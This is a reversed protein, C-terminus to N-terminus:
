ARQATAHSHPPTGDLRAIHSRRTHTTALAQLCALAAARCAAQEDDLHSRLSSLVRGTLAVSSEGDAAGDSVAALPFQPPTAALASHLCHLSHLRVVDNVAGPRWECGPLLVDGILAQQQECTLSAARPASSLTAAVCAITRARDAEQSERSSLVASWLPLVLHWHACVAAPSRRLWLLLSSPIAAPLAREVLALGGDSAASCLGLSALLHPLCRVCLSEDADVAGSLLRLEASLEAYDFQGGHSSGRSANGATSEDAGEMQCDLAHLLLFLRCRQADASSQGSSLSAAGVSDAALRILSLLPAFSSFSLSPAAPSALVSSSLLSELLDLLSELDSTSLPVAAEAKSGALLGDLAVLSAPLMESWGSAQQQQAGNAIAQVAEVCRQASWAAAGAAIAKRTVDRVAREDDLLGRCLSGMIADLRASTARATCHAILGVLRRHGCLREEAKWDTCSRLVAPLLDDLRESLWDPVTSGSRSAEASLTALSHARLQVDDDDLLTLLQELLWLEASRQWQGGSLWGSACDLWAARVALKPDAALSSLLEVASADIAAPLALLLPLAAAAHSPLDAAREAEVAGREVAAAFPVLPCLAAIAAKRLDLRQKLLLCVSSLVSTLSDASSRNAAAFAAPLLAACEAASRKAAPCSDALGCTLVACADVLATSRAAHCATDASPSPAQTCCERLVELLGCRVEEAREVGSRERLLPVLLCVACLGVRSLLPTSNRLAGVAASRVAESDDGLRAHLLPLLLRQCHAALLPCCCDAAHAAGSLQQLSSVRSSRDASDTARQVTAALTCTCLSEKSAPAALAAHTAVPLSCEPM